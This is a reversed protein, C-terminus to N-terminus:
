NLEYGTQQPLVGEKLQGDVYYSSPITGSLRNGDVYFTTYIVGYNYGNVIYDHPVRAPLPGTLNNNSLRVSILHPQHVGGLSTPIEGEFKNNELYLLGLSEIQGVVDPLQGSLQNDNLALRLLKKLNAFSSPITGTLKNEDAYFERLNAMEGMQSPLEGSLENESVFLTSLSKLNGLTEPLKGSLKCGAIDLYTLNTLNGLENPIEGTFKNRGLVIYTANTLKGIEAPITGSLLTREDKTVYNLQTLDWPAGWLDLSDIKTLNGIKPSLSGHVDSFRMKWVELHRLNYLEDPITGGLKYNESLNLTRLATLDGIEKPIFGSLRNGGLRVDTVREEGDIIATKIGYWNKISVGEKLWNTKHHWQNGNTANYIAVLALSDKQYNLGKTENEIKLSQPNQDLEPQSQGLNNSCGMLTM